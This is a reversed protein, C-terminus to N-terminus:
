GMSLLSFLVCKWYIFKSKVKDVSFAICVGFVVTVVLTMHHFIVTKFYEESGDKLIAWRCALIKRRDKPITADRTKKGGGM